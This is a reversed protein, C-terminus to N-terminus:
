AARWDIKVSEPDFGKAAKGVSLITIKCLTSIVERKQDLTLREWADAVQRGALHEVVPPITAAPRARREADEIKPLLRAEVKALGDPTIKGDAAAHYWRDLDARLRAVDAAAVQRETSDDQSMLDLLDPRSLRAVVAQSVTQDVPEQKRSAHSRKCAYVTYVGAKGSRAKRVYLPEGCTSCSLLGSLLHRAGRGENTRRAPDSLRNVVTWYDGEDVISEWAGPHESGKHVRVGINTRSLAMRRVM